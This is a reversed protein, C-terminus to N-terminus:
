CGVKNNEDRAEIEDCGKEYRLKCAQKFYRLAMDEDMSTGLGIDYMKAAKCCAEGNKDKCAAKYLALAKPFDKSEYAHNAEDLNGGFAHSLILLFLLYVKINM